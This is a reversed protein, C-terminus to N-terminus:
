GWFGLNWGLIGSIGGLVELVGGLYGWNWGLFAELGGIEGGFGGIGGRFNGHIGLGGLIGFKVGWFAVWIRWDWRLVGFKVGLDELEVGFIGDGGWGVGGWPVVNSKPTM